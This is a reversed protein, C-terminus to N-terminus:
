RRVEVTLSELAKAIQEDAIDRARQETVPAGDAVGANYGAAYARAIAAAADRAETSDAAFVFAGGPNVPIAANGDTRAIVTNNVTYTRALQTGSMTVEAKTSM